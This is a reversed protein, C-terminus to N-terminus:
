FTTKKYTNYPLIFSLFKYNQTMKIPTIKTSIPSNDSNLLFDLWFFKFKYIKTNIINHQSSPLFEILINMFGKASPSNLRAWLDLFNNRNFYVIRNLEIKIIDKCRLHAVEVFSLTRISRYWMWSSEVPRLNM